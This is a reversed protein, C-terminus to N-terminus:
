MRRSEPVAVVQAVRGAPDDTFEACLEPDARGRYVLEVESPAAPFDGAEGDRRHVDARRGELGSAREESHGAVLADAGEDELDGPRLDAVRFLAGRLVHRYEGRRRDPFTPGAREEDLA